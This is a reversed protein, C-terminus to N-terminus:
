KRIFSAISIIIILSIGVILSFVIAKKRRGQEIALDQETVIRSIGGLVPFRLFAKAEDVGLFSHDMFEILLILGVGSAIGMFLGMFVVLPKNPKIPKIPLRPPDLVTYRTGQTSADLRQTIKATELKELLKNYISEDVKADQGLANNIKEVLLMKYLADNSTGVVNGDTGIKDLDLKNRLTTLEEKLKDKDSSLPMIQAEGDFNSSALEEKAKTIKAQLDRVMPHSETSDVLLNNLTEQMKAIEGEKMKKRYVKLQDNIFTIADDTEKNQMKINENIFIETITKIVLQAKEPNKDIFSIRIINQGGLRVNIKSRLDLILREYAYQSDVNKDLGLAKVLQALSNWSLMQEHITKMRETMATSVALSSIIPNIIKGEEVMLVTYSEYEKPLVQAFIIGFLLGCYVCGALLWKRRFFMKIYNMPLISPTNESSEM